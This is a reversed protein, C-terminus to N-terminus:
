IRGCSCRLHVSGFTRGHLVGSVQVIHLLSPISTHFRVSAKSMARVSSGIRLMYREAHAMRRSFRYGHIQLGIVLSGPTRRM